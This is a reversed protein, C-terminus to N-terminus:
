QMTFYAAGAKRAFASSIERFIASPARARSAASRWRRSILVLSSPSPRSISCNRTSALRSASASAWRKRSRPRASASFISSAARASISAAPRAARTSSFTSPARRATSRAATNSFCSSAGFDSAASIRVNMASSSLLTLQAGDGFAVGCGEGVNSEFALAAFGHALVKAREHFSKESRGIQAIGQFAGRHVARHLVFDDGRDGGLHAQVIGHAIENAQNHIVAARMQKVLYQRHEAGLQVLAQTNGFGFHGGRARQAVRLFFFQERHQLAAGSFLDFRPKGFICVQQASGYHADTGRNVVAGHALLQVQQALLQFSFLFMVGCRANCRRRRVTVLFCSDPHGVDFRVFYGFYQALLDFIILLSEGDLFDASDDGNAVADRADVAKILAHGAFHDFERMVNEADRQVEFFILNAGHQEAIVGFDLFAVGDLAGSFDHGHRHAIAQDAAHHVREAIGNVIFTGNLRRLAIREFAESRAHDIALGHAFGDLGANFGNVGHNGDTAALALQDNAVTLDSFGGDDNVCDQVLAAAVHNANVAGNALFTGGDRLEDLREGIVARHLVADDDGSCSRLGRRNLVDRWESRTIDAIIEPVSLMVGNTKVVVERFVCLGVAFNRAQEAASRAAFSKRSVNEEQM